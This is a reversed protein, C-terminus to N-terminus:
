QQLIASATYSLLPSEQKDLAALSMQIEESLMQTRSTLRECLYIEELLQKDMMGGTALLYTAMIGRAIPSVFNGAMSAVGLLGPIVKETISGVKSHRNYRHIQETLDKVVNDKELAAKLLSHYKVQRSEVDLNALAVLGDSLHSDLLTKLSDADEQSSLEVLKKYAAESRTIDSTGLGQALQLVQTTIALHKEDLFRQQEYLSASLSKLKVKEDLIVDGAESAPGYGRYPILYNLNAFGLSLAKQLLSSYKANARNADTPTKLVADRTMKDILDSLATNPSYTALPTGGVSQTPPAQAQSSLPVTVTAGGFLINSVSQMQSDVRDMNEVISAQQAQQRETKENIKTQIQATLAEIRAVTSADARGQFVLQVLQKREAMLSDFSADSLAPTAITLATLVALLKTRNKM